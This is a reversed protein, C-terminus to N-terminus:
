PVATTGTDAPPEKRTVDLVHVRRRDAQVVRFEFKDFFVHEGRRPMSGLEHIILGGITDYEEDSFETGFYENFEDIRTLARVQYLSDSKKQIPETELPDHEDDIEGVIEELVDEITLLGATGGYEDVVIAMHNRSVRFEKLLTNLRKSEPIFTPQRLFSSLDFTEDPSSVIHSLVDKALLIGVVEDRDEGIIPFRSHGSEVIIKIVEEKPTGREIVVMHSRPIMVERVQTESVKLVGSLMTMEDTSIIKSWREDRLLKLLSDKTPVTHNFLGHIRSWWDQLLTQKNKNFGSM